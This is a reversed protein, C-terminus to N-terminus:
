PLYRIHWLTQHGWWVNHCMRYLGDRTSLVRNRNIPLYKGQNLGRKCLLQHKQKQTALVTRYYRYYLGQAVGTNEHLTTFAM